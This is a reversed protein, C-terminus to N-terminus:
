FYDADSLTTFSINGLLVVFIKVSPLMKAQRQQYLDKIKRKDAILHLQAM